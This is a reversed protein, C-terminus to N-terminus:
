ETKALQKQWHWADRLADELSHQTKWKLVENAKSVDAWVQEVDGPRRPGLKYNLSQGSVKEFTRIVELVSNGQGTGVNVVDYFGHEPRDRLYEFAKIHANALDMVHIYDRICTGDPTNYDDGFVTIQSRLGAATQTVFPILNNPVGNPLEGIHATPHAGVPNFYRLALTKFNRGSGVADRLIDECMQKTRGYPSTAPKVPSSETVPLEDPQGYVTCSSSFVLEAVHYDEMLALLVLLSGLNNHYYKLPETVSEGVAKYAAFHIVGRIDGESQFIAEMQEKSTCDALYFTPAKHMIQSLGKLVSESSNVFNDVLIPEYGAAALAVATHSGIYGAGGTVLIKPKM